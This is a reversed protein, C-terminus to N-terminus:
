ELASVVALCLEGVEEHLEARHEGLRDAAYEQLGSDVPCVVEGHREGRHAVARLEREVGDLLLGLERDALEILVHKVPQNM